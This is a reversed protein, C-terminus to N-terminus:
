VSLWVLHAWIRVFLGKTERVLKCLLCSRLRWVCSLVHHLLVVFLKTKCWRLHYSIYRCTSFLAARCRSFIGHTSKPLFNATKGFFDPYEVDSMIGRPDTLQYKSGLAAHCVSLYFMLQLCKWACLTLSAANPHSQTPVGIANWRHRINMM